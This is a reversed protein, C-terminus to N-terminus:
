ATAIKEKNELYETLDYVLKLVKIVEGSSDKIPTYNGHVFIKKGMKTYREFTGQKLVGKGLDKWFQQYDAGSREQKSVFMSHHQGQIEELRYGMLTLFNDNATQVDGKANFEITALSDNVADIFGKTNSSERHMEEQTAQLEEMNQRMEEEQARMEETMQQSEELLNQTQANVRVTSITSAISEASKEVFEIEHEKFENFSAIEVVGYIEDNVKLPIILISTPNADGLGSTISIYNDPVDTIYIREMEQWCQGVLGDGKYIKQELYKKKDWAYCALLEMYADNEDSNDIVFLGGQNAKLYKILSRIIEDSLKVIDSNNRRLIEGFLAQGETAWSRKKDEEAVSRLNNRMEILANGLM